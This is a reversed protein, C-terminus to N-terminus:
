GEVVVILKSYAVHKLVLDPDNANQETYTVYYSVPYVGPMGTDVTGDTKVSFGSPIHTGLNTTENLYTFSDLYASSDFSEGVPLYILYDTLSLTADYTNAEYVEVPIVMTVTDGLSNTVQFQVDHTGITNISTTALATARIRHQINGDMVDEANLTKLVDFSLGSRFLLPQQLSFRPSRYDVYIAEQQAKAVNGANDFAAYSVSLRGTQDLLTISEVVLSDTVDGDEKDTARIGSLLVNRPDNISIQPAQSNLTIQPPTTDTGIREKAQYILFVAVCLIILVILLTTTKKKM